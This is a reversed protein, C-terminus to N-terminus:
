LPWLTIIIQYCEGLLLNITQEIAIIDSGHFTM